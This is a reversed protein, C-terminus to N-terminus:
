NAWLLKFLISRSQNLEGLFNLFWAVLDLYFSVSSHHIFLFLFAVYFVFFLYFFLVLLLFFLFLIFSAFQVSIFLVSTFCLRLVLGASPFYFKWGNKLTCSEITTNVQFKPIVFDSNALAELCTLLCLYLVSRSMEIGLSLNSGCAHGRKFNLIFVVFLFNFFFWVLVFVLLLFFLNELSILGQVIVAGSSFLFDEAVRSM